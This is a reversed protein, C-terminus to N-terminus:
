RILNGNADFRNLYKPDAPSVDVIAGAPFRV